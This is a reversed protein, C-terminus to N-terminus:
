KETVEFWVEASEGYNHDYLAGDTTSSYAGTVVCDWTAGPAFDPGHDCPAGYTHLRHVVSDDNIMHITDGIKAKIPTQASNWAKEVTGNAIHFDIMDAFSNLTFLQLCAAAVLLKIKM